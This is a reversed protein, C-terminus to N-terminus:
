DGTSDASGVTVDPQGAPEGNEGTEDGCHATMNEFAAGAKQFEDTAFLSELESSAMFGPDYDNKEALEHLQKSLDLAAKGGTTNKGLASAVGNFIVDYLEVLAKAQEKTGAPVIGAGLVPALRCPDSGADIIAQKAADITPFFESDPLTNDPLTQELNTTQTADNKDSTDQPDDSNSCASLLLTALVAIVGVFRM